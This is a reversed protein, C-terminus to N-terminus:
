LVRESRRDGACVAKIAAKLNHFIKTYSMVDFVTPDPAIESIVKWMKEEEHQLMQRRIMYM